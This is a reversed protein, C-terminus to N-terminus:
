TRITVNHKRAERTYEDRSEIQSIIILIVLETNAGSLLQDGSAGVLLCVAAASQRHM